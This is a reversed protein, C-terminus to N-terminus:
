NNWSERRKAGVKGMRRTPPSEDSAKPTLPGHNADDALEVEDPLEQLDDAGSSCVSWEENETNSPSVESEDKKGEVKPKPGAGTDVNLQEFMKGKNQRIEQEMEAVYVKFFYRNWFTHNDVKSPVLKAYIERLKPNSSLLLNIEGNFESLRFDKLWDKYMNINGTPAKLFTTENNQFELLSFPETFSGEDKATDEIAFSKVTDVMSKIWGLNFGSNNGGAQEDKEQEKPAEEEPADPTTVFQQFLEAQQKATKVGANAISSVEHQVTESFENFDKKVSELTNMTQEKAKAMWDSGFYSNFWQGPSQLTTPLHHKFVTLNLRYNNKLITRRSKPWRKNRSRERRGNAVGIEGFIVHLRGLLLPPSRAAPVGLSM